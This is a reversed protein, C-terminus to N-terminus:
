VELVWEEKHFAQRLNQGPDQDKTNHTERYHRGIISDDRIEWSWELM